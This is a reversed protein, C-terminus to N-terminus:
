PCPHGCVTSSVEGILCTCCDSPMPVAPGDCGGACCEHGVNCGPPCTRTGADAPTTAGADIAPAPLDSRAGCAASAMILLGIVATRSM